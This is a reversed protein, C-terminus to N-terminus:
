RIRRLTLLCYVQLHKRKRQDKICGNRSMGVRKAVRCVNRFTSVVTSSTLNTFIPVSEYTILDIKFDCIISILIAYIKHANQPIQQSLPDLTFVNIHERIYYKGVSLSQVHFRFLQVM